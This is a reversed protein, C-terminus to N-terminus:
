WRFTTTYSMVYIVYVIHETVLEYTKSVPFWHVWM